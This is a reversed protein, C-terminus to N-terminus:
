CFVLSSVRLVSMSPHLTCVQKADEAESELVVDDEESEVVVQGRSRKKSRTSAPVEAEAMKGPPVM